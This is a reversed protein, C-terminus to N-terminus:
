LSLIYAILDAIDQPKLKDDYQNPMANGFDPVLHRGPEVISWFAYERASMGAVRKDARSGLGILTPTGEDVDKHCSNCAPLGQHESQFIEQGRAADGTAPLDNFTIKSSTNQSCAVLVLANILIFFLLKIQMPSGQNFVMM